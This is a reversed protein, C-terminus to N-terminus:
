DPVVDVVGGIPNDANIWYAVRVNKNFGEDPILEPINASGTRRNPWDMWGKPNDTNTGTQGTTIGAIEKTDPCVFATGKTSQTGPIYGDRDLIPGWGDLATDGNTGTMNYSPVVHERHDGAYTEFAQGISRLNASCALSRASRRANGLAPLLLGVLLAIIAIVVLLEILTFGARRPTLGVHVIPHAMSFM